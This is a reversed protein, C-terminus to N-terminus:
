MRGAGQGGVLADDSSSSSSSSAPRGAATAATSTAASTEQAGWRGSSPTPGGTVRRAGRCRRGDARGQRAAAAAATTPVVLAAQQVVGPLQDRLAVLQSPGHHVPVHLQPLPVGAVLRQPCAHLADVLLGLLPELLLQGPVLHELGLVLLERQLLLRRVLHGRVLVHHGLVRDLRHAVPVGLLQLADVAVVAGHPVVVVAVALLELLRGLRGALGLGLHGLGLRRQVQLLLLPALGRLPEARVVLLLALPPLRQVRGPLLLEVGLGGQAGGLGLGLAKRVPDLFGLDDHVLSVRLLVAHLVHEVRLPALQGPEPPPDAVDLRRPLLGHPADRRDLGLAVRGDVRLALQPVLEHLLAVVHLLPEAHDLLLGECPLLGELGLGALALM